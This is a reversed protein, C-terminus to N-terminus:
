KTLRIVADAYTPTCNFSDCTYMTVQANAKGAKFPTPPFFGGASVDVAYPHSTGDCVIQTSGYGSATRGQIIQGSLYGNDGPDCTVSGTLTAHLHGPSLAATPDLTLESVAALATGGLATTLVLALVATRRRTGTFAKPVNM